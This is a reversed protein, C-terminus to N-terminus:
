NFDSRNAIRESNKKAFDYLEQIDELTFMLEYGEGSENEHVNLLGTHLDIGFDCYTRKPPNKEGLPEISEVLTLVERYEDANENCYAHDIARNLIDKSKEIQTNIELEHNIRM